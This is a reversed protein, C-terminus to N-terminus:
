ACRCHALVDIPASCAGCMRTVPKPSRAAPRQRRRPASQSARPLLGEKILLARLENRGVSFGAAKLKRQTAPVRGKGDLSKFVDVARDEWRATAPPHPELDVVVVTVNDRGGAKIAARVLAETAQEPSNAALLAKIKDDTLEGTLGDTCLLLRGSAPMSVTSVHPSTRRGAGLCRTLKSQGAHQRAEERSLRGQRVLAGAENHDDTLQQLVGAHLLYARSDGVWGVTLQGDEVAAAVVTTGMEPSVHDSGIILGHALAIAARVDAARRSPSQLLAQSVGLVALYGAFQGDPHGGMGDAVVWVADGVYFDDENRTRVQGTETWGASQTSLM